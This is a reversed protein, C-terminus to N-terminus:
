WGVLTADTKEDMCLAILSSSPDSREARGFMHFM